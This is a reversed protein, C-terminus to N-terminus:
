LYGLDTLRKTLLIEEQDLNSTAPPVLQRHEFLEMIERVSDALSDRGVRFCHDPATPPGSLGPADVHVVVCPSLRLCLSRRVSARLASEMVVAIVSHRMLLRCLYEVCAPDPNGDLDHLRRAPEEDLLEVAAGRRRLQAGLEVALAVRSAIPPGALWCIFARM